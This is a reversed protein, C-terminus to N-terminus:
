NLSLEDPDMFSEIEQRKSLLLGHQIGLNHSFSILIAMAQQDSYFDARELLHAKIRRVIFYIEGPCEDEDDGHKEHYATHDKLMQKIISDRLEDMKKVSIGSEFSEELLNTKETLTMDFILNQIENTM